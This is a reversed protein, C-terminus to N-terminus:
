TSASQWQERLRALEERVVLDRLLKKPPGEYVGDLRTRRVRLMELYERRVQPSKYSLISTYVAICTTFAPVGDRLMRRREGIYRFTMRAYQIAVFLFLSVALVLGSVIGVNALFRQVEMPLKNWLFEIFRILLLVGGLYLGFVVVVVALAVSFIGFMKWFALCNLGRVRRFFGGLTDLIEASGITLLLFVIPLIIIWILEGRPSLTNKHGFFHELMRCQLFAIGFYCLALRVIDTRGGFIRLLLVRSEEKSETSPSLNLPKYFLFTLVMALPLAAGFALPYFFLTDLGCAALLIILLVSEARDIQLARRQRRFADSLSLAFNLDPFRSLLEPLSLGRIYRRIVRHTDDGIASMHRCSSLTVDCIWGSRTRFAALIAEQQSKGEIIPILEAGIKAALLDDSKLLDLVVEGLPQRFSTSAVVDARFADSLFRVCQIAPGALEICGKSLLHSQSQIVSWCYEAIDKRTSEDAIGCYMVLCDRWRSDEPISKVDEPISKVRFSSGSRQMADVVFFEAFRRHVFSFRNNSRGSVRVLRTYGLAKIINASKDKYSEPILSQIQDLDAELGVLPSRYMASALLGAGERVEESSVQLKKFEAEDSKLVRSLYQDFVAYTNEPLKDGGRSIAYDAILEATFPNRLVPVLQPRERFLRQVYKRSDFGKGILWLQMVSFIQRENFPRVILRTGRIGVPARFHRSALVARCTQVEQTFFRDFTVSIRKHEKSKEDCDLVAPLEDFSDIIFFLRGSKRFREYCADLLARGDKGTLDEATKRVFTVLSETTPEENAPYERLNVYIPVIGSNSADKCLGRVLRRLSVSKGSGPDGFVLFIASARDGRIAKVLDRAIRPRWRSSREAEVEAELPTLDRDSWNVERDYRDLAAILADCYRKLSKKFDAFSQFAGALDPNAAAHSIERRHLYANISVVGIVVLLSLGMNFALPDPLSVIGVRQAISSVARVMFTSLASKPLWYLVVSACVLAISAFRVPVQDSYEAVLRSRLSYAAAFCILSLSLGVLPGGVFAGAACILFTGVSLVTFGLLRSNTVRANRGYGPDVNLDGEVNITRAVIVKNGLSPNKNRPLDYFGM